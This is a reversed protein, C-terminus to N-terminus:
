PLFTIAEFLASGLEDYLYRCPLTKQGARTLGARVDKVLENEPAPAHMLSRGAPLHFLHVSVGPPVLEPVVAASVPGRDSAIGREPRLARWRLVASFLESLVSVPYLGHVARVGHLDM